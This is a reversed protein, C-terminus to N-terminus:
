EREKTVVVPVDDCEQSMYAIAAQPDEFYGEAEDDIDGRHLEWVVGEGVYKPVPRMWWALGGGPPYMHAENENVWEVKIVELKPM